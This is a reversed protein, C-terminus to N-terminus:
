MPSPTEPATETLTDVVGDLGTSEPVGTLDESSFLGKIADFLAM